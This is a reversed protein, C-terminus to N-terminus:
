HSMNSCIEPASAACADFTSPVVEDERGQFIVINSEEVKWVEAGLSRKHYGRALSGCGCHNTGLM